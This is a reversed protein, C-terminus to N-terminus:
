FDNETKCLVRRVFDCPFKVEGLFLVKRIQPCQEKMQWTVPHTQRSTRIRCIFGDGQVPLFHVPQWKDTFKIEVM